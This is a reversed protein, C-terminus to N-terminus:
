QHSDYATLNMSIESGQELLTANAILKLKHIDSILLEAIALKSEPVEVDEVTILLGGEHKPQVM